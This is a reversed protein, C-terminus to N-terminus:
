SSYPVWFYWWYLIDCLMSIVCCSMHFSFTYTIKYSWSKLVRSIIQSNHKDKQIQNNNCIQCSSITHHRIKPTWETIQWLMANCCKSSFFWTGEQCLSFAIWAAMFGSISLSATKKNRMIRLAQCCGSTNIQAAKLAPVASFFALETSQIWDRATSWNWCHNLM